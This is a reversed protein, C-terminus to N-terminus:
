KYVSKVTAGAPYTIPGYKREYGNRADMYGKANGAEIGGKIAGYGLGGIGGGAFGLAAGPVIGAGGSIAGGVTGGGIAGAAAGGFGNKVASVGVHALGGNNNAHIADNYPSFTHGAFEITGDANRKPVPKQSPVGSWFGSWNRKGNKDYYKDLTPDGWARKQMHRQRLVHCAAHNIQALKNLTAQKQLYNM